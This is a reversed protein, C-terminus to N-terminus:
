HDLLEALQTRSQLLLVAGHREADLHHPAHALESRCVVDDLDRPAEAPDAWNEVERM